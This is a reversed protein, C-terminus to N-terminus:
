ENIPKNLLEEMKERAKDLSRFTFGYLGWTESSPWKEGAEIIADGIRGEKQEKIVGVEYAIIQGEDSQSYIAVNSVREILKYDYGSKRFTENLKKM